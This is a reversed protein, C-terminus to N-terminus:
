RADYAVRNEIGARCLFHMTKDARATLLKRRAFPLKQLFPTKVPKDLIFGCGGEPLFDAQALIDADPFCPLM